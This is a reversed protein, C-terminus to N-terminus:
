WVGAESTAASATLKLVARLVHSRAPRHSTPRWSKDRSSTRAQGQRTPEKTGQSDGSVDPPNRLGDLAGDDRSEVLRSARLKRISLALIHIDAGVQLKDGIIKSGLSRQVRGEFAGEM